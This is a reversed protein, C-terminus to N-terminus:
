KSLKHTNKNLSVSVYELFQAQLSVLGAVLILRSYSIVKLQEKDKMEDKTEGFFSRVMTKWM